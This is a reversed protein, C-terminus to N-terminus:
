IDFNSFFLFRNNIDIQKNCKNCFNQLWYNKEVKQCTCFISKTKFHNSLLQIQDREKKPDEYKKYM